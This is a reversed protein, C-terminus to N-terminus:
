FAVTIKEGPTVLPQMNEVPGWTEKASPVQQPYLHYIYYMQADIEKEEEKAYQLIWYPVFAVDINKTSSIVEPDTTDGSLFIRKGHWTILYSYHRFPIGFIKHKTKFAKIEFGPITEGLKELAKINHVGFHQGGKTKMVSKLNKKSYHDAHKHTYIFIADQTISDLEADDFEMYGHAGSKYPFDIYFNTTGDTMYLGCNGMFEITIQNNQAYTFRTTFACALILLLSSYHLKM